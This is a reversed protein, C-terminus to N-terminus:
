PCNPAPSNQFMRKLTQWRNTEEPSGTQFGGKTKVELEVYEKYLACLESNVGPDQGGQRREMTPTGSPDPVSGTEPTEPTETMTSFGEPGTQQFPKCGETPRDTYVDGPCVYLAAALVIMGVM